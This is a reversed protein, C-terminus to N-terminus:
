TLTGDECLRFAAIAQEYVIAEEEDLPVGDFNVVDVPLWSKRYLLESERREQRKTSDIM